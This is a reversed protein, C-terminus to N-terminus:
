EIYGLQKLLKRSKEKLNKLDVDGENSQLKLFDLIKKKMESAIEKEEKIINKEEKPDDKLNYLEFIEKEPHPIYIIKWDGVIMTRWKGKVGKIFVKKNGKFHDEMSEAFIFGRGNYSKDKILPMLNTGDVSDIVPIKLIDLITPMIDTIQVKNKIKKNKPILKPNKFILPVKLNPEYLSAGHQFYYNHEGFTEGHDSTLIVLTNDDMKHKKIFDLLRGIHTDIYKIGGDYHTMAHEVEEKPFKINGFIIDGRTFKGDALTNFDHKGKYNPDFMDGFPIPPQYPWHLDTPHFCLFFEKDKNKKIWNIAIDTYQETAGLFNKPNFVKYIGRQIKNRIKWTILNFKEFGKRINPNYLGGGGMFATKYGHSDLIEPLTALSPNIQKNYILRVGHSHPYLGTFISTLSPDTGPLTTYASLFITGEKSLNDMNPSTNKPYGNMGLHDPRLADVILLIINM